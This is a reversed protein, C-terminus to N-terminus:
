SLNISQNVETDRWACGWLVCHLLCQGMIDWQRIRALSGDGRACIAEQFSHSPCPGWCPFPHRVARRKQCSPIAATLHLSWKTAKNGKLLTRFAGPVPKIEWTASCLCCVKPLTNSGFWRKCPGKGRHHRHWVYLDKNWGLSSRPGQEPSNGKTIWLPAEPAFKKESQLFKWLLDSWSCVLDTQERCQCLELSVQMKLGGVM